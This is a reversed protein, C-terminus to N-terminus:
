EIAVSFLFLSLGRPNLRKKNETAISYNFKRPFKEPIKALNIKGFIYDRRNERFESSDRRIERSNDRIEDFSSYNESPTLLIGPVRSLTLSIGHTEPSSKCLENYNSSIRATKERSFFARGLRWRLATRPQRLHTDRASTHPLHMATSRPGAELAACTHPEAPLALPGNASLVVAPTAHRTRTRRRTRRATLLPRRPTAHRTVHGGRWHLGRREPELARRPSTPTASLPACPSPTCRQGCRTVPDATLWRPM